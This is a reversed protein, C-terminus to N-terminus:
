SQFLNNNNIKEINIGTYDVFDYGSNNSTNSKYM